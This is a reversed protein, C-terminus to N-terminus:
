NDQQTVEQLLYCTRQDHLLDSCVLQIAQLHAQLVQSSSLLLVEVVVAVAVAVVVVVVVVV